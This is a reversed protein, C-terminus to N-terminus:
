RLSCRSRRPPSSAPRPSWAPCRGNRGTAASHTWCRGHDAARSRGPWWRWGRPSMDASWGSVGAHLGMAPVGDRHPQRGVGRVHDAASRGRCRVAPGDRRGPHGRALLIRPPGTGDVRSQDLRRASVPAVLPGNAPPRRAPHPGLVLRVDRGRRGVAVGDPDRPAIRSRPGLGQGAHRRRRAPRRPARGLVGARGRRDPHRRGTGPRAPELAAAPVQPSLRSRTTALM